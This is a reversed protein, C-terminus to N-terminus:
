GEGSLGEEELKWDDDDEPPEITSEPDYLRNAEVYVSNNELVSQDAQLSVVEAVEALSDLVDPCESVDAM